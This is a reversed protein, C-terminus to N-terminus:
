DPDITDFRRAPMYWATIFLRGGVTYIGLHGGNVVTIVVTYKDLRLLWYIKSQGQGARGKLWYPRMGIAKSRQQKISGNTIGNATCAPGGPV